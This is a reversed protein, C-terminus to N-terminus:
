VLKDIETFIQSILYLITWQFYLNLIWYSGYRKETAHEKVSNDM